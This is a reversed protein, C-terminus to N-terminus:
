VGSTVIGDSEGGGLGVGLGTEAGAPHDLKKQFSFTGKEPNEIEKGLNQQRGKKKSFVIQYRASEHAGLM